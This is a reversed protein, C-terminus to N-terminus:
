RVEGGRWGTPIRGDRLEFRKGSSEELEVYSIESRVFGAEKAGGNVDSDLVSM